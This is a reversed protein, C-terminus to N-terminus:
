STPAFLAAEVQCTMLDRPKVKTTPVKLENPARVCLGTLSHGLCRQWSRWRGTAEFLIIPM